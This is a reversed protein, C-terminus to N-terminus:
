FNEMMWMNSEQADAFIVVKRGDPSPAVQGAECVRDRWISKANGQLDVFLLSCGQDLRSNLFFGKADATFSVGELNKWGGRVPIERVTGDQLSALFLSTGGPDKMYVIYKGDYSMDTTYNADPDAQFSALQKLFGKLPDFAIFNIRRGDESVQTAV